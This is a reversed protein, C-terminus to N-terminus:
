AACPKKPIFILLQSAQFGTPKFAQFGPLRSAQLGPLQFALFSPLWIAKLGPPKLIEIAGFKKM